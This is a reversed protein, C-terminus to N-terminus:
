APDALEQGGAIVSTRSHPSLEGADAIATWGHFSPDTPTATMETHAGVVLANWAQAPDEIPALDSSMLHDEDFGDRVNGASVVFLRKADDEPVGVLDIGTDSRGIETGVAM